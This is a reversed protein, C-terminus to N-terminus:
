PSKGQATTPRTNPKRIAMPRRRHTHSLPSKYGRKAAMHMRNTHFGAVFALLAILLETM